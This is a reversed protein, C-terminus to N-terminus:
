LKKKRASFSSWILFDMIDELQMNDVSLDINKQDSLNTPQSKFYRRNTRIIKRFDDAENM